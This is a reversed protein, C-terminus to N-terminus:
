FGIFECFQFSTDVTHRDYMHFIKGLLYDGAVFEEYGALRVDDFPDAQLQGSM